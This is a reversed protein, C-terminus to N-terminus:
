IHILSLMLNIGNGDPLRLDILALDLNLDSQALAIAENVSSATIVQYKKNLARFLASRLSSEDDVVLVRQIRSM